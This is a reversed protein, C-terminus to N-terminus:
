VDEAGEISLRGEKLFQLVYKESIGTSGCDVITANEHEYLYEKDKRLRTWRTPAGRVIASGYSQFLRGCIKCSLM